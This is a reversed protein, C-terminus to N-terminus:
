ELDESQLPARASHYIRVISVVKKTDSIEYVIRHSHYPLSRLHRKLRASEVILAHRAPMESLSEMAEFLGDFWNQAAQPSFESFFGLTEAIDLKARRALQIKYAM